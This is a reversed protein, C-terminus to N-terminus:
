RASCTGLTTFTGLHRNASLNLTSYGPHLISLCLLYKLMLPLHSRYCHPQSDQLCSLVSM